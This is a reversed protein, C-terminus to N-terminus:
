FISFLIECNEIGEMGERSHNVGSNPAVSLQHPEVQLVGSTVEPLPAAEPDDPQASSPRRAAMDKRNKKM